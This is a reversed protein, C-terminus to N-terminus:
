EERDPTACRVHRSMIRHRFTEDMHALKAAIIRRSNRQPYRNPLVPVSSGREETGRQGRYLMGLHVFQRTTGASSGRAAAPVRGTPPAVGDDKVNPSRFIHRKDKATTMREELLPDAERARPQLAEWDSSEELGLEFEFANEDGFVPKAATNSM